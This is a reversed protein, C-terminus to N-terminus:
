SKEVIAIEEPTLEYLQYVLQDIEKDTKSIEQQASKIKEKEAKFLTLWESQKKAPISVGAKELEALLDIFELDYWKKLKNTPQEFPFNSQLLELFKHSQDSSSKNLELMKNALTIFPQQKKLTIKKIPLELLQSGKIKPFTVKNDSFTNTFFFFMLKSSLLSQIYALDIESSSKLILYTTQDCFYNNIDLVCYIRDTGPIQRVILKPQTFISKDRFAQNTYLTENELRYDIFTNEFEVKYPFIDKGLLFPKFSNAKKVDSLLEKRIKIGNKVEFFSGIKHSASNIKAIIPISTEDLSENIQYDDKTFESQNLQRVLNFVTEELRYFSIKSSLQKNAAITFSSTKVTVNEFVQDNTYAVAELSYNELIYKRLNKDSENYFFVSPTIFSLKGESRLLKLGLEIFLKYLDIQYSATEFRKLFYEKEYDNMLERSRVYPPNGVVVDFGGAQMIEAFSKNWDFADDGAVTPDDILSNGQKINGSLDALSEKRNATKLWLSLKTIEVSEPNLDVGFINNAVINKKAKWEDIGNYV